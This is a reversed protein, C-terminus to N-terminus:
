ELEQTVHKVTMELPNNLVIGSANKHGGGGFKQALSNVDARKSRLSVKTKGSDLETFLITIDAQSMQALFNSFGTLAEMTLGHQKLVKEPVCVWVSKGTSSSQIQTLLIGWLKLVSVNKNSFLELALQFMNVNYDMLTAAIRLTEATTAKTSFQQSDYLMGFLLCEAVYTDISTSDWAYLIKYLEECTSSAAPNILNVTGEISNSIHHDINILPITKFVDPFYLRQYNATDLTIILDPIISHTNIATKPAQRKLPTEPGSPYIAEVQKHQREFIYALAACASIGDADPKQHTLLTISNASKILQYAKALDTSTYNTITM